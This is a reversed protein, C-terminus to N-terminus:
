PTFVQSTRNAGLDNILSFSRVDREHDAIHPFSLFLSAFWGVTMAAIHPKKDQWAETTESAAGCRVAIEVITKEAFRSSVINM